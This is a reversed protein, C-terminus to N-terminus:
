MIRFHAIAKLSGQDLNNKLLQPLLCVEFSFCSCCNEWSSHPLVFYITQNCHRLLSHLMACLMNYNEDLAMTKMKRVIIKVMFFPIKIKPCQSIKPYLPINYKRFKCKNSKDVHLLMIWTRYGNEQKTPSCFRTHLERWTSKSHAISKIVDLSWLPECDSSCISCAWIIFVGSCKVLIKHLVFYNNCPYRTPGQMVVPTFNFGWHIFTPVCDCCDEKLHGILSFPFGRPLSKHEM